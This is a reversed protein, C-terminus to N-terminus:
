DYGNFLSSDGVFDPIYVFEVDLSVALQAIYIDGFGIYGCFGINKGCHSSFRFFRFNQNGIGSGSYHYFMAHVFQSRRFRHSSFPIDVAFEVIYEINRGYLSDYEVKENGRQCYAVLRVCLHGVFSSNVVDALRVGQKIRGCSRQIVM